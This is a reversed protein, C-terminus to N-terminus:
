KKFFIIGFVVVNFWIICGSAAVIALVSRAVDDLNEITPDARYIAIVDFFEPVFIYLLVGSILMIVAYFLLAGIFVLVEKVVWWFNGSRKMLRRVLGIGFLISQLIFAAAGVASIVPDNLAYVIQDFMGARHWGIAGTELRNKLLLFAGAQALARQRPLRGRLM